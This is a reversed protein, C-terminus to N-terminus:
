GGAATHVEVRHRRRRLLLERQRYVAQRLADASVRLPLAKLMSRLSVSQFGSASHKELDCYCVGKRSHFLRPSISAHRRTGNEEKDAPLENM